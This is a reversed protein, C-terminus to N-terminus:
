VRELQGRQQDGRNAARYEPIWQSLRARVEDDTGPSAQVWAIVQEVTDDSPPVMSVAIRLKPHRTPVTREADALLEEYLKEGPRLGTFVIKIDDESLGSLRILQRALDVIRVPEGMDLVFIEGGNGMLAAQLVLQAAEPISMFYRQIDPHTVTVPGGRLIQERFRPIVSGNSGLVNGFRVVIFQTASRGALAQCLLEALRKSAGMVNTPNVAKDTSVMVFRGVGADRAERALTYTGLVNNRAAEFANNEEMLPVHKYAAAHFVIDPRFRRMIEAVRPSHKVDGVVAAIATKPHHDKFEQEIAYLAFESIEFLVLHAPSFRVIQRCLEAGISGGAGTVLITKGAILHELGASDLQVPDRGLLDDLEVERLQSVSVHGSVLDAYSPVTRVELNAAKCLEVARMRDRHTAGPMAIVAHRIGLQEAVHAVESLPGFIRHGLLERGQKRPDDDLLGAVRWASQKSFERILAAGADGAGLVLIPVSSPNALLSVSHERWARLAIRSGGVLFLALLPQLILVSRPVHEGMRLMAFLAPIAAAGALTALVIRRLDHLSAYRWITSYLGFAAFLAIYIPTAGAAVAVIARYEFHPIALNYRLAYALPWSLAIAAVDYLLPPIRNFQANM